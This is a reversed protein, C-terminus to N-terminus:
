VLHDSCLATALQFAKVDVVSFQDRGGEVRSLSHPLVSLEVNPDGIDKAFVGHTNNLAESGDEVLPIGVTAVWKVVHRHALIGLTVLREREEDINLNVVCRLIVLKQLHIKFNPTKIVCILSRSEVWPFCVIQQLLKFM